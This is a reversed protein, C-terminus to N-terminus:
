CARGRGGSRGCPAAGAGGPPTFAPRSQAHAVGSGAGAYELMRAALPATLGLGVLMRTFQRRSLTGDKVREIWQRLEREDM